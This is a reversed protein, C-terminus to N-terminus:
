DKSRIKRLMYAPIMAAVFSVVLILFGDQFARTSAQAHIVQGLYHLATSARFEDPLGSQELMRGVDELMERTTSNHPSQTATFAESHMSTRTDVFAVWAALGLSGGLQRCFNITGGGANLKERPIAGLATNMIFPSTFSMGLRSVIFFFMVAVFPTNTDAFGMPITGVTFLALGIIIGIHPRINDSLWGTFPLTAVILLSSPLMIIAADLPSAGQILQVFVPVGYGSGFNGVGFVFAILAVVAYQRYSFLSLDMLTPGDRLQSIVFGVACSMGVIFLVLIRTSDWGSRNGDTLGTLVCYVAVLLLVYGLWDFPEKEDERTSPMFLWGMVASVAIIPITIWFIYRWHFLEIAFGGFIPGMAVAMFVGMSYLAMAFGRREPPYAQFMTVMILPQVVGAAVGQLVRGFVLWEFDASLAAIVSGAVFVVSMALFGGRQGFIRVVWVNLLQSTVLAVNFASAVLQARDLGIGFAGMVDPVAVNVITGSTVMTFSASMAAVTLLTRYAGGYRAFLDDISDSM